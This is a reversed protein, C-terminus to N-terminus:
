QRPCGLLAYKEDISFIPDVDTIRGGMPESIRWKQLTKAERLIETHAKAPLSDKDLTPSAKNHDAQTPRSPTHATHEKVPKGHKRKKKHSSEDQDTKERKRKDPSKSAQSKLSAM